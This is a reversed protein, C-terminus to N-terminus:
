KTEVILTRNRPTTAQGCGPSGAHCAQATAIPMSVDITPINM